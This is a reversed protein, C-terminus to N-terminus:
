LESVLLIVISMGSSINSADKKQRYLLSGSYSREAPLKSQLYDRWLM